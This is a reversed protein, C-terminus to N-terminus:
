KGSSGAGPGGSAMSYSDSMPSSPPNAGKWGAGPLNYKSPYQENVSGVMWPKTEAFFYSGFRSEKRKRRIENIDGNEEYAGGNSGYLGSGDDAAGGYPAFSDAGTVSRGSSTTNPSLQSCSSLIAALAISLILKM